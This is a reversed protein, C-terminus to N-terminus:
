KWSCNFVIRYQTCKIRGENWKSRRGRFIGNERKMWNSIWNEIKNSRSAMMKRGFVTSLATEFCTISNIPTRYVFWLRNMEFVTHVNMIFRARTGFGFSFYCMFKTNWLFVMVYRILINCHRCCFYVICLCRYWYILRYRWNSWGKKEIDKVRKM